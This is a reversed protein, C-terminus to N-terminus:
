CLPPQGLERTRLSGHSYAEETLFLVYIAISNQLRKIECSAYIDIVYIKFRNRLSRGSFYIKLNWFELKVESFIQEREYKSLLCDVEVCIDTSDQSPM